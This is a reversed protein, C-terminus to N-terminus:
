REESLKRMLVMGEYQHEGSDSTKVEEQSTQWDNFFKEIESHQEPSIACMEVNYVM